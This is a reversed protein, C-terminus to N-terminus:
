YNYKDTREHKKIDELVEMEHNLRNTNPSLKILFKENQNTKDLCQYISSTGNLAEGIVFKNKLVM